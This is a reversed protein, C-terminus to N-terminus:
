FRRRHRKGKELKVILKEQKPEPEALVTHRQQGRAQYCIAAAMVLDDHEGDLAQPRDGDYAFVLM